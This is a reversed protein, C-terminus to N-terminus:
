KSKKITKNYLTDNFVCVTAPGTRLTFVYNVKEIILYDGVVRFNAIEEFGDNDVLFVAPLEKGEGDKFQMYTFKGDDFVKVPSIIEDGSMSYNFNYREPHSLDPLSTTSYQIISNDDDGTSEAAKPYRFKIFFALEEDFPSKSDETHLEFFYVRKNTMITATTEADDEVPKLYLRNANPVMQWATPKATSISSVTEGGEFEIYTHSSYHGTYYYVTNPYYTWTKFRKDASYQKPKLAKAFSEQYTAVCFILLLIRFFM